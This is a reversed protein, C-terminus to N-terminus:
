VDMYSRYRIVVGYTYVKSSLNLNMGQTTQVISSPFGFIPEELSILAEEAHGSATDVFSLLLVFEVGVNFEEGKRFIPVIDNEVESQYHVNLLEERERESNEEM